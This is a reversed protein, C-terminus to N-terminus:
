FQRAGNLAFLVEVATTVEATTLDAISPNEAMAEVLPNTTLRGALRYFKVLVESLAETLHDVYSSFDDAPTQYLLGKQTYHAFLMQSDFCSLKIQQAESPTAPFVTRKQTVHIM